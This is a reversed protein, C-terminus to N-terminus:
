IKCNHASPQFRRIHVSMGLQELLARRKEVEALLVLTLVVPLFTAAAYQAARTWALHEGPPPAPRAVFALVFALLALLLYRLIGLRTGQACNIFGFTYKITKFFSEIRWRSRGLRVLQSGAMPFTSVIFRQEKDGNEFTLHFWSAWMPIALGKLMVKTGKRKLRSLPRDEVTRRDARIGVLAQFGRQHVGEIFGKSAFWADALVVVRCRDTLSKPLSALMRLALRSPATTDKGNWIRFNWPVRIRGLELYVMVLHLGVKGHMANIWNGLGTFRGTKEICTVDVIVKLFPDRGHKSAEWLSDLLLSRIHRVLARTPWSYHNLFRSISSASRLPNHEPLASRYPSLFALLFAEFTRKHHVSLLLSTFRYLLQRTEQTTNM